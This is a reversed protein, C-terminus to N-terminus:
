VKNSIVARLGGRAWDGLTRRLPSGERAALMRLAVELLDYVRLTHVGISVHASYGEAVPEHIVGRPLYLTDGAHLVVERYDESVAEEGIRFPEDSLPFTRRGEYLRWRKSGEIQLVVLDHTDWHPPTSKESAPTLYVNIQAELQFLEEAAIRLRNLAPSWQEVARLIITAGERHLALVRAQDVLSGQSYSAFPLPSDGRALNLNTVPIRASTVLRDLEELDVVDRFHDRDDRAILVPTQDWHEAFFAEPAFPALFSPTSATTM